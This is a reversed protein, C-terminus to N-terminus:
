NFCAPAERYPSPRLGVNLTARRRTHLLGDRPHLLETSGFKARMRSFITSGVRCFIGSQAGEVPGVLTAMGTCIPPYRTRYGRRSSMRSTLHTLQTRPEAAVAPMATATHAGLVPAVSQGTPARWPQRQRKKEATRYPSRHTMLDGGPRLAPQQPTRSRPPWRLCAAAPQTALQTTLTAAAADWGAM